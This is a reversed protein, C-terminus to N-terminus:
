SNPMAHTTSTMEPIRSVTQATASSLLAPKLRSTGDATNTTANIRLM